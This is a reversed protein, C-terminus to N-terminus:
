NQLCIVRELLPKYGNRMERYTKGKPKWGRHGLNPCKKFPFPSRHYTVTILCFYWILEWIAEHTQLYSEWLHEKSKDLLLPINLFLHPISWILRSLSFFSSPLNQKNVKNHNYGAIMNYMNYGQSTSPGPLIIELM